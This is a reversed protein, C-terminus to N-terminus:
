VLKKWPIDKLLTNFGFGTGEQPMLQGGRSHISSIFPDEQFCKHTLLGCLSVQQPYLNSLRAAEYAACMQGFPHDLYSTIILKTTHEFSKPSSEVAPKYVCYHASDPSQLALLCKRDAAFSVQLALQDQTWADSDYPYPDEVLDICERVEYPIKEWYEHFIKRSLKENFDLRFHLGSINQVWLQMTSIEVDPFSGVKLKFHTLGQSSLEPLNDSLSILQHCLPITMGKFLSHREKRANADLNAFHLSRELLPTRANQSLLHLQNELSEDGLEVWPHCDCYGILGDHFTIQLLAGKRPVKSSFDGYRRKFHLQYLHYAIKM